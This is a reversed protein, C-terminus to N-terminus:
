LNTHMHFGCCLRTNGIIFYFEVIICCIKRNIGYSYPIDLYQRPGHVIEKLVFFILSVRSVLNQSRRGFIPLFFNFQRLLPAVNVLKMLSLVHHFSNMVYSTHQIVQTVAAEGYHSWNTTCVAMKLGGFGDFVGGVPEYKVVVLLV